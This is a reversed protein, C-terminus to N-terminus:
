IEEHNHKIRKKVTMADEGFTKDYKSVLAPGKREPNPPKGDPYDDLVDVDDRRVKKQDEPKKKKLEEGDEDLNVTPGLEIGDLSISKETYSEDSSLYEGLDLLNDVDIKEGRENEVIEKRRLCIKRLKNIYLMSDILIMILSFIVFIFVVLGVLFSQILYMSLTLSNNAQIWGFNLGVVIFLCLESGIVHFNRVWNTYPRTWVVWVLSTASMISLIGLTIYPTMPFMILMLAFTFKRLFVQWM